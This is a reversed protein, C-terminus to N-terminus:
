PGAAAPTFVLGRREYIAALDTLAALAIAGHAGCLQQCVALAEAARAQQELDDLLDRPSKGEANKLAAALEQRTRELEELARREKETLDKLDQLPEAAPPTLRDALAAAAAVQDGSLPQDGPAIVPRWWPLLSFGVAALPGLWTWRLRPM